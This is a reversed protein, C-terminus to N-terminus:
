DSKFLEILKPLLQKCDRVVGFHARQFIPADPDKNIAVICESSACGAMHQTAGSIGVAVYLRPSVITGTLGVQRSSPLWGNDIAVRSGGVAGGLLRALEELLAFNEKGGLGRGGSIIIAAEELKPGQSEERVREILKLRLTEPKLEVEFPVIRGTRTEDLCAPAVAKNRLTAVMPADSATMLALAKAGYVPREVLIKKTEAETKFDLCDTFVAAKLRWALRPALDVGQLTHGFLALGIPGTQCIQELAAAHAEPHYDKFEPGQVLYVQDAGYGILAEALDPDFAAASLLAGTQDALRRGLAALELTVRHFGTGSQEAYFLIEGMGNM